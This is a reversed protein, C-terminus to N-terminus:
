QSKNSTSHCRSKRSWRTAVHYCVPSALLVVSLTSARTTIRNSRLYRGPWKQTLKKFILSKNTAPSGLVIDNQPRISYRSRIYSKWPRKRTWQPTSFTRAKCLTSYSSSSTM